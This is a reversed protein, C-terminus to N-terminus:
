RVIPGLPKRPANTCRVIRGARDTHYTHRRGAAELVVEYGAVPLPEDRGRRDTGCGLHQDPWTRSASEVIRVTDVGVGLRAALADRVRKETEAQSLEKDAGPAGSGARGSAAMAITGALVWPLFM